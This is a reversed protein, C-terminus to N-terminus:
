AEGAVMLLPRSFQGPDVTNEPCPRLFFRAHFDCGRIVTISTQLFCICLLERYPGPFHKNVLQLQALHLDTEQHTLLTYM